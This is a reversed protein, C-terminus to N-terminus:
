INLLILGNVQYLLACISLYIVSLEQNGLNVSPDAYVKTFSKFKASQLVGIRAYWLLNDIPM